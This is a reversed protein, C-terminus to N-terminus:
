KAKFRVFIRAIHKYVICTVLANISNKILNFPVIVPFMLQKVVEIPTGYMPTFILNLPIMMATTCLVGIVISIYANRRDKNM